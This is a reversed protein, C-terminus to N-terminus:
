HFLKIQRRPPEPEVENVLNIILDIFRSFYRNDNHLDRTKKILIRNEENLKVNERRLLRIERKSTM